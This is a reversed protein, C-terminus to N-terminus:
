NKRRFFNLIDYIVEVTIIKKAIYIGFIIPPIFSFKPLYIMLSVTTLLAIITIIAVKM